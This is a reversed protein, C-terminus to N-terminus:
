GQAAVIALAETLSDAQLDFAGHEPQWDRGLRLWITRLGADRAGGIDSVPNDGIMWGQELPRGLREAALAFIARDPKIVGVEGSIVVEDVHDELGLRDIKGRQLDSPGNTIVAIPRQARVSALGEVAGPAVAMAERQDAPFRTLWATMWCLFADHGDALTDDLDILLM